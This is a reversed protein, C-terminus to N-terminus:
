LAERDSQVIYIKTHPLSSSYCLVVYVILIESQPKIPRPAFTPANLSYLTFYNRNEVQTHEPM